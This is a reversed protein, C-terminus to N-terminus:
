ISFLLITIKFTKENETVEVSGGYRKTIRKISELGIKHSEGPLPNSAKYNYQEIILRGDKNLINLAVQKSPDAYKQINSALNDFIRQFDQIMYEGSFDLKEDISINCDFSDELSYAWEDALQVFLLRGDPIFEKEYSNNDLLMDTLEKIQTAKRMTMSLYQQLDDNNIDEKSSLYETHAIIATLPTRIDHSMARVFNERERLLANEKEKLELETKSMQNISEALHTFENNHKVPIEYNLRHASLAEIGATIDKLYSLKQGVLILFLVIFIVTAAAFSLAGIWTLYNIEQIETLVIGNNDCYSILISDAILNIFFFSFVSIGLVLLFALLLEKSLKTFKKPKNSM